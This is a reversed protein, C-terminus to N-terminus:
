KRVKGDRVYLVLPDSSMHHLLGTLDKHGNQNPDKLQACLQDPTRGQFVLPMEASPLRWGELTPPLGAASTVATSRHCTQCSMGVKELGRQVMMAHPRGDDGAM